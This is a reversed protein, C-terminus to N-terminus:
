IWFIFAKFAYKKEIIVYKIIKFHTCCVHKFMLSKHSDDKGYIPPKNINQFTLRGATLNYSQLLTMILFLTTASSPPILVGSNIDPGLNEFCSLDAVMTVHKLEFYGNLFLTTEKVQILIYRTLFSNFLFVFQIIDHLKLARVCKKM